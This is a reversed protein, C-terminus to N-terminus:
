YGYGITDKLMKRDIYRIEKVEFNFWQGTEALEWIGKGIMEDEHIVSIHAGMSKAATSVQTFKQSLPLQPAIEDIFQNDVNLYVFGNNKLCLQAVANVKAATALIAEDNLTTFDGSSSLGSTPEDSFNQAALTQAAKWELPGTPMQKGLTIHFDYGKLKPSCGYSQRLAELEPSDVAIVWLKKLGDRTHLM